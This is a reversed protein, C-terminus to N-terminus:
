SRRNRSADRYIGSRGVPTIEDLRANADLQHLHREGFQDAPTKGRGADNGSEADNEGDM